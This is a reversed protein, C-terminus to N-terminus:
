APSGRSPAMDPSPNLHEECPVRSLLCSLNPTFRRRSPIRLGSPADSDDDGGDHIPVPHLLTLLLFTYCDVAPIRSPKKSNTHCLTTLAYIKGNM